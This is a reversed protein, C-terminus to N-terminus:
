LVRDIKGWFVLVMEGGGMNSGFVLLIPDRDTSETTEEFASCSECTSGAPSAVRGEMVDPSAGVFLMNLVMM